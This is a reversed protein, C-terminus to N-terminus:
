ICTEQLHELVRPTGVKVSLFLNRFCLLFCFVTGLREELGQFYVPYTLLVSLIGM